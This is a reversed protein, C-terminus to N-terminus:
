SANNNNTIGYLFIGVVFRPFKITYKWKRCFSLNNFISAEESILVIGEDKLSEEVAKFIRGKETGRKEIEM